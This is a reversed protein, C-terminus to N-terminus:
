RDIIEQINSIVDDLDSVASELDSANEEIQQYRETAQLGETGADFCDQEEGQIEELREKLSELESVIDSLKKRREKNM